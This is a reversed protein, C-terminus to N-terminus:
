RVDCRFMNGANKALKRPVSAYQCVQVGDRWVLLEPSWEEASDAIGRRVLHGFPNIYFAWGTNTWAVISRLVQDSSSEIYIRTFKVTCPYAVVYWDERGPPLYGGLYPPAQGSLDSPKICVVSSYHDHGGLLASMNNNIGILLLREMGWNCLCTILPSGLHGPHWYEAVPKGSSPDLAFLRSSFWTVDNAVALVRPHEEATGEWFGVYTVGLGATPGEYPIGVDVATSWLLDGRHDWALILGGDAGGPRTGIVVENFGDRDIDRVFFGSGELGGAIEADLLHEWVPRDDEAIGIVATQDAEADYLIRIDSVDGAYHESGPDLPNDRSVDSELCGSFVLFVLGMSVLTSPYTRRRVSSM